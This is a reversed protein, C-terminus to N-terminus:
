YPNPYDTLGKAAGELWYIRKGDYKFRYSISYKIHGTDFNVFVANIFEDGLSIPKLKWKNSNVNEITFNDNKTTVVWYYNDEKEKYELTVDDKYVGLFEKNPNYFQLLILLIATVGFIIYFRLYKM